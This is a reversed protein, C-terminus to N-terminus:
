YHINKADNVNVFYFLYTRLYNIHLHLEDIICNFKLVLAITTKMSAIYMGVVAKKAQKQM